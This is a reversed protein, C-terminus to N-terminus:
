KASNNNLGNKNKSSRLNNSSFYGLLICLSYIEMTFPTWGFFGYLFIAFLLGIYTLNFINSVRDQTSCLKYFAKIRNAFFYWWVGLGILGAEAVVIVHINHIPSRLFFLTDTLTIDGGININLKNLMYYVHTNIGVGIFKSIEWMQYGLSWHIFRNSLQVTSDSEFFLYGIPSIYLGFLLVICICLFYLLYKLSFVEAGKTRILIVIPLVIAACIITTRSFTLVMAIFCAFILAFSLKRKFRNLYCVTFFIMTIFSYLALHGPHGFTGIASAMGRRQSWEFANDGRFLGAVSELGLVPYCIALILQLLATMMLGDYIGKLIELRSFNAEIFKFFILFQIIPFVITLISAPYINYPNVFSVVSMLLAVYMWKNQNFAFINKRFKYYGLLLLVVIFISPMEIRLNNGFEGLRVVKDDETIKGQLFTYISKGYAFPLTQVFLSILTYSAKKGLGRSIIWRFLGAALIVLLIILKGM